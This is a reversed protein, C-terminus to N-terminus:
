RGIRSDQPDRAPRRRHGHGYMQDEHGEQAALLANYTGQREMLWDKILAFSTLHECQNRIGEPIKKLVMLQAQGDDMKTQNILKIVSSMWAFFKEQEGDWVNFDVPPLKFKTVPAKAEEKITFAADALFLEGQQEALCADELAARVFQDIEDLKDQLQGLAKKAGAKGHPKGLFLRLLVVQQCIVEYDEASIPGIAQLMIYFQPDGHKFTPSDGGQDYNHTM